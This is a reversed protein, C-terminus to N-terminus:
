APERPDTDTAHDLRLGLWYACSGIPNDDLDTLEAPVRVEADDGRELLQGIWTSRAPHVKSHAILGGAAGAKYNLSGTLVWGRASPRLQEDLRVLAAHTAAVEAVAYAVAPRVLGHLLHEPKPRDFRAVCTGDDELSIDLDLWAVWASAGLAAAPVPM